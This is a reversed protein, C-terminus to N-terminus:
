KPEPVTFSKSVLATSDFAPFYNLPMLDPTRPKSHFGPVDPLGITQDTVTIQPRQSPNFWIALEIGEMPPAAYYFGWLKDPPEVMKSPAKKGDITARLITANQVSVWLTVPRRSSTLRLRLLRKATEPADELLTIQPAPLLVPPAESKLVREGPSVLFSLKDSEIRGTLFQSTWSDLREDLSIWSAKGTDANLWYAITDPRPHKNDHGSHFAGWGFLVVGVLAFAASIRLNGGIMPDLQPALLALLITTLIVSVVLSPMPDGALTTDIAAILLTFLFIAPVAFLLRLIGSLMSSHRWRFSIALSLLGFGLPLGFLVSAGPTFWNSLVTLVLYWFLGGLALNEASMKRQSLGYLGLGAAITLCVFALAYTRANYASSYSFNVLELTKLTRWLLAAMLAYVLTSGLWLLIGIGLGRLNIRARRFGLVLLIAFLIVLLLTLPRVLALPYSVIRGPIVFYASDPLAPIERLNSNGWDRTVPLTYIGLHQVSRLDINELDDKATHYRFQCGGYSVDAITLKKRDFVLTDDGGPPGLKALEAGISSTLPHPVVNQIERLAWGDSINIDAPGCSGGSDLNWVVSVEKAWPHEDVFGQSGVEALEEGDTFLFIVDNRLPPGSKLARLTELLTVVGSGDDTAGPATAVSDYHAMLLVAGTSATGRLRAMVNEVTGAGYPGAYIELLNTIGTRQVQTEVGLQQLEQILYDRVRANASSGTAHPERAIVKLHEFARSASFETLPATSPVVRPPVLCYFAAGVAVALILLSLLACAPTSTESATHDPM